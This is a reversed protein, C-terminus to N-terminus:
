ITATIEVCWADVLVAFQPLAVVSASYRAVLVLAQLDALSAGALSYTYNGSDYNEGPYLVALAPGNWVTAVLAAPATIRIDVGPSDLVAALTATAHFFIRLQASVVTIGSPVNMSGTTVTVPNTTDPAGTGTTVNAFTGNNQGNANSPAVTNGTATDNSTCGSAWCRLTVTRGETPTANSDDFDGAPFNLQATETMGAVAGKLIIICSLFVDAEIKQAIALKSGKLGAWVQHDATNTGAASVDGTLDTLNEPAVSWGASAHTQTFSMLGVISLRGTPDATVTGYNQSQTRVDDGGDIFAFDTPIQNGVSPATFASVSAAETDTTGSPTWTWTTPESSAIKAYVGLHVTRSVLTDIVSQTTGLQTWGAPATITQTTTATFGIYAILLDGDVTATPRGVTISTHDTNSQQTSSNHFVPAAPETIDDEFTGTIAFTSADTPAANTDDATIRLSFDDTIGSPGGGGSTGGGLVKYGSM